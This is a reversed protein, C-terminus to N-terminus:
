ADSNVGSTVFAVLGGREEDEDSAFIRLLQVRRGHPEDPAGAELPAEDRQRVRLEAERAQRLEFRASSSDRARGEGVRKSSQPQLSDGASRSSAASWSRTSRPPTRRLSSRPSRIRQSTSLSRHSTWTSIRTELYILSAAQAKRSALWYAHIAKSLGGGPVASRSM